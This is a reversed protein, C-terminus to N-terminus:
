VVGCRIMRRYEAFVPLHEPRISRSSLPIRSDEVIRQTLWPTVAKMPRGVPLPRRILTPCGVGYRTGMEGSTLQVGEEDFDQEVPHAHMFLCGCSATYPMSWAEDVARTFDDGGEGYYIACLKSIAEDLDDRVGFRRFTMLVAYRLWGIQRKIWANNM